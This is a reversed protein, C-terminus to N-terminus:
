APIQIEDAIVEFEGDNHVVQISINRPVKVSAIMGIIEGTDKDTIIVDVKMEYWREFDTHFHLITGLKLFQVSNWFNYRTERYALNRKERGGHFDVKKEVESEVESEIDM